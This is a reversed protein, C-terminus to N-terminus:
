TIGFQKYYVIENTERNGKEQASSLWQNLQQKEIQTSTWKKM